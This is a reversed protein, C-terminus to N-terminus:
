KQETTTLLNIYHEVADRVFEGQSINTDTALKFLQKKIEKSFKITIAETFTTKYSRM